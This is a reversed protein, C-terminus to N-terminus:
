KSVEDAAGKLQSLFTDWLSTPIDVATSSQQEQSEDKLEVIIQIVDHQGCPLASNAHEYRRLDLTMEIGDETITRPETVTTVNLM